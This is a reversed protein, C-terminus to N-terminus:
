ETVSGKEIAEQILIKVLAFGEGPSVDEPPADGSKMAALWKEHCFATAKDLLKYLQNINKPAIEWGIRWIENRTKEILAHCNKDFSAKDDAKASEWIRKKIPDFNTM